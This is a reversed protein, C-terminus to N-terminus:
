TRAESLVGSIGEGSERLSDIRQGVIDVDGSSQLHRTSEMSSIYAKVLKQSQEHEHASESSQAYAAEDLPRKAVSFSRLVEAPDQDQEQEQGPSPTSANQSSTQISSPDLLSKLTFSSSPQLHLLHTIDSSLTSRSLTSTSTSVSASISM